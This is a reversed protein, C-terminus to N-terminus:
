VVFVVLVIFLPAPLPAPRGGAGGGGPPPAACCVCIVCMVCCGFSRLAHFIHNVRGRFRSATGVADVLGPEGAPGGAITAVTGQHPHNVAGVVRLLNNGFDTFYLLRRESDLALGEPHNVRAARRHGDCRSPVSTGVLTRVEAPLETGDGGDGTAVDAHQQQSTVTHAGARTLYRIKNNYHDAIYLVDATLDLALGMPHKFRATGTAAGDVDGFYPQGAVNPSFCHHCCIVYSHRKHRGVWEMQRARFSLKNSPFHALMLM